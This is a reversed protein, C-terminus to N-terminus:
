RYQFRVLEEKTIWMPEKVAQLEFLAVLLSYIELRSRMYCRWSNCTM